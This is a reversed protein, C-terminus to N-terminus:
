RWGCTVYDGIKAAAWRAADVSCQSGNDAVLVDPSVKQAVKRSQNPQESTPPRTTRGTGANTRARDDVGPLAHPNGTGVSTHICSLTALLPLLRFRHM